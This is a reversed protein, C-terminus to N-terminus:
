PDASLKDLRDLVSLVELGPPPPGPDWGPDADNGLSLRRETPEAAPTTPSLFCDARLLLFAKDSSPILCFLSPLFDVGLYAAFVAVTM